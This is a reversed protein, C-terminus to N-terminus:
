DLFAAADGALFYGPGAYPRCTYSFDAAVLNTEPGAAERMRGLVAPCRAIGWSLMRNAPVDVARAASEDLVLGVSTRRADLPILWFWGEECMVILPFGGEDGPPRDVNELHAFYAVKHLRRDSSPLR